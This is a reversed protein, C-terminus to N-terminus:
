PKKALSGRNYQPDDPPICRGIGLLGGQSGPPCAKSAATAAAPAPMEAQKKPDLHEWRGDPFLRVKDGAATTAEISAPQALASSAALSVVFLAAGAFLLPAKRTIQKM